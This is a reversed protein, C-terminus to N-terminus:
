MLTLQRFEQDIIRRPRGGKQQWGLDRKHEKTIIDLTGKEECKNTTNPVDKLMILLLTKPNEVIM